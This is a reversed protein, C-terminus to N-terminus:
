TNRRSVYMASRWKSWWLSKIYLLTACYSPVALMCLTCTSHYLNFLKWMANPTTRESYMGIISNAISIIAGVERLEEKFWDGSRRSTLVLLCEMALYGPSLDERYICSLREECVCSFVITLSVSASMTLSVFMFSRIETKSILHYCLSNIILLLVLKMYYWSSWQM